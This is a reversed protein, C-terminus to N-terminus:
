VNRQDKMLQKHRAISEVALYNRAYNFGLQGYNLVFAIAVAKQYVTFPRTILEYETPKKILDVPCTQSPCYHKNREKRAVTKCKPCILAQKRIIIEFVESASKHM